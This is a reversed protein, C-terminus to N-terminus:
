LDREGQPLPLPGSAMPSHSPSPTDALAAEVAQCVGVINRMVDLNSFRVVRYGESALFNTRRQDYVVTHAHSNGDVEIVLRASQCAFDAFYPGIRQQRRFKFGGLANARLKSWLLKEAPSSDRRLRRARDLTGDDTTFRSKTM